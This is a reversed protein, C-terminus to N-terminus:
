GVYEVTFGEQVVDAASTQTCSCQVTVAGSLTEAPTTLLPVTPTTAAHQAYTQIAKQTAAGTRYVMAEVYWAGASSITLTFNAVLTAGFAIRFAKANANNATTGWARLKLGRGNVDLANAPLTYSKLNAPSGAGSSTTSTDVNPTTLPYAAATSTGLQFRREAQLEAYWTVGGDKTRLEIEDVGSVKLAPAVGGLWTVSAPWTVVFASGNTILLRIRAAFSSSPVNAFAITTAQTVTFAFFRAGVTQSLDITTTAGVTPTLFPIRQRAIENEINDFNSDITGDWGTDRSAYKSFGYLTTFTQAM